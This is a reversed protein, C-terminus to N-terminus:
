LERHNYIQWTYFDPSILHILQFYLHFYLNLSIFDHSFLNNVPSFDHSLLYVMHVVFFASTVKLNM